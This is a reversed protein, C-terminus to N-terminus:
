TVHVEKLQRPNELTYGNSVLSEKKNPIRADPNNWYQVEGDAWFVFIVAAVLFIAFTIWFVVRWESVSQNTTLIGVMYPGGIGALAGVTSMIAMLTGSYNPSLDLGNVMMGPYMFGMFGMGVTFLIVTLIKDCGAYSGTVFFIAPIVTAVTTCAKRTNTRSMRDTKVVWDALWSSSVSALWMFVYFLATYFGNSQVPFKLVNSMYLPLDTVMTHYGCDIGFKAALLAWLPVSMLMDRWPPLKAVRHTHEKMTEHLYKKEKETIFPHDEPHSYCLICWAVFWVISVGGYFYFVVPWGMSSNKIMVGTLLNGVITGIQCGAMAVTAIKSREHPPAWQAILVNLAPFTTGEGLGMLCRLVVLGTAGFTEVVVPTVITFIATSLIGIGLTHKGGFKDAVLGGPIQTIIYGWFFSSLIIGQFTLIGNIPFSSQFDFM